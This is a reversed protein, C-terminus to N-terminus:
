FHTPIYSQFSGELQHPGTVHIQLYSNKWPDISNEVRVGNM